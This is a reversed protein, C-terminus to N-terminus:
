TSAATPAGDLLSRRAAERMVEIEREGHLALSGIKPELGVAPTARAAVGRNGEVNPSSISLL